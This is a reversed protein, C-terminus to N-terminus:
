RFLVQFLGCNHATPVATSTVRLRVQSTELPPDLVFEQLDSRDLTEFAHGTERWGGDRDLAEVRFGRVSLPGFPMPPIRLGVCTVRRDAGNPSVQFSIWEDCQAPDFAKSIWWTSVDRTTVESLDFDDRTSSCRWARYESVRPVLLFGVVHRALEDALGAGRVLLILLAADRCACGTTLAPSGADAPPPLGRLVSRPLTTTNSGTHANTVETDSDYTYFRQDYEAPTFVGHMAAVVYDDGDPMADMMDTAQVHGVVRGSHGHYQALEPADKADIYFLEQEASPYTSARGDPGGPSLDLAAM